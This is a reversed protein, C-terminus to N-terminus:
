KSSSPSAPSCSPSWRGASDARSQSAIPTPRVVM